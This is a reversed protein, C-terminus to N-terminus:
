EFWGKKGVEVRRSGGMRGKRTEGESHPGSDSHLGAM